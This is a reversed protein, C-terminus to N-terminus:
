GPRTDFSKSECLALRANVDLHPSYIRRGKYQFHEGVVHLASRCLAAYATEVVETETAWPSIYWKRAHQRAEIGTDVDKEFYRVQIYYGDGMVGLWLQRGPFNIQSIIWRVDHVSKAKAVTM